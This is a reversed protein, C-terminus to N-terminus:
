DTMKSSLSLKWKQEAKRVIQFFTKKDIAKRGVNLMLDAPVPVGDEWREIASIKSYELRYLWLPKGFLREDPFIIEEDTFKRAVIGFGIVRKIPSTVYFALYDGVKATNWYGKSRESFGWLNHRLSTLWTESDGVLVYYRPEIQSVM